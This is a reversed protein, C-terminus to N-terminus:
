RFFYTLGIVPSIGLVEHSRAAIDCQVHKLRYGLGFSPVFPKGSVGMRFFINEVPQYEIGFRYEAAHRFTTEIETILMLEPIIRYSVGVCATKDLPNGVGSNMLMLNSFLFGVSVFDSPKWYCGIDTTLAAPQEDVDSVHIFFYNFRLGASITASLKRAVSLGIRNENYHEYGFRSFALGADLWRNPYSLVASFEALEKLSFRNGYTISAVSSDFFSIGSPNAPSALSIGSVGLAKSRANEFDLGGGSYLRGHLFVVAFLLSYVSKM